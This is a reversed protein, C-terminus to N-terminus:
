GLIKEALIFTQYMFVGVWSVCFTLVLYMMAQTVSPKRMIQAAIIAELVGQQKNHLSESVERRIKRWDTGFLEVDKPFSGKARFTSEVECLKAEWREQWYKSGLAVRYWFVCVIFGLVTVPLALKADKLTLYAYALASNLILFYNCRQWFLNIELNRTDLTIKYIQDSTIRDTPGSNMIIKNHHLKKGSPLLTLRRRISHLQQLGTPPAGVLNPPKQRLNRMVM